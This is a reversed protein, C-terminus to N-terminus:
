RYLLTQSLDNWRTALDMHGPPLSEYMTYFQDLEEGDEVYQHMDTPYPLALLPLSLLPSPSSPSPSHFSPSSSSPSPSSPSHSPPHWYSYTLM